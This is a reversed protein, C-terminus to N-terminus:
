IWTFHLSKKKKASITCESCMSPFMRNSSESTEGGELRNEVVMLKRARM